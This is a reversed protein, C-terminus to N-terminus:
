GNNKREIFRRVRERVLDVVRQTNENVARELFKPGGPNWYTGLGSPRPQGKLKQEMNEHVHLAYEASFGTEAGGEIRNTFASGQLNGREVPTLNQAAEQIVLAGAYCGAAVAEPAERAIRRLERNLEEVGEVRLGVDM